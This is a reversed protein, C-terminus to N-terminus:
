NEGALLSVPFYRFVESLDLAAAGSALRTTSVTRGSLVDRWQRPAEEPLILVTEAWGDAWPSEDPGQGALNQWVAALL